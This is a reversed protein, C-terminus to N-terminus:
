PSLFTGQNASEEAAARAKSAEAAAAEAKERSEAAATTAKDARRLAAELTIKARRLPLPDEGLHQALENKAKGRSVVGGTETLRKLEETRANYADEQRKVEALAAEM